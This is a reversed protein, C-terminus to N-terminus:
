KERGPSRSVGAFRVSKNETITFVFEKEMVIGANINKVVTLVFLLVVVIKAINNEGETIACLLVKANEVLAKRRTMFVSIDREM